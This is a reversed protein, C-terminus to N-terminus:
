SSPRHIVRVTTDPGLESLENNVPPNKMLAATATVKITPETVSIQRNVKDGRQRNIEALHINYKNLHELRTQEILKGLEDKNPIIKTEKACKKGNVIKFKTRKPIFYKRNDTDYIIANFEWDSISMEKKGIQKGLFCIVEHCRVRLQNFNWIAQQNYYIEIFIVLWKENDVLMRWNLGDYKTFIEQRQQDTIVNTKVKRRKPRM